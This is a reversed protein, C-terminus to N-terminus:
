PLPFFTFGPVVYTGIAVHCDYYLVNLSVRGTACADPSRARRTAFLDPADAHHPADTMEPLGVEDKAM